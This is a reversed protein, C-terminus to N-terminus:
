PSGPQEDILEALISVAIERPTEAGIEIGVPTRIKGLLEADIGAEILLQRTTAWRRTSGMLGITPTPTALLLPLLSADLAVNRTVVVVRTFADIPHAALADALPGSMAADAVSVEALEDPRDDWVVVRYGLWHALEVVAKGVHGAGIVYVTTTPMYPELYLDVDGGCVGPDGAAPDVLSYAVRRPRGDALAERAEARVRAEMEGGGITGEITGDAFVLMKSGPRRPVSRQSAVVTVLVTPRRADVAEVLRHLLSM